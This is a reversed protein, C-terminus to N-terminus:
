LGYLQSYQEKITSSRAGRINMQKLIQMSFFNFLVTVKLMSSILMYIGNVSQKRIREFLILVIVVSRLVITVSYIM